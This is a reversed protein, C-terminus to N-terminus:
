PEKLTCDATHMYTRVSDSTNDRAEKKRKNHNRWKKKTARKPMVAYHARLTGGLKASRVSVLNLAGSIQCTNSWSACAANAM